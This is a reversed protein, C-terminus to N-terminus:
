NSALKLFETKLCDKSKSSLTVNLGITLWGPGTSDGNGWTRNGFGPTRGTRGTSGILGIILGGIEKFASYMKDKSQAGLVLPFLLRALELPATKIPL